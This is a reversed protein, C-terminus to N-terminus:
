QYTEEIWRQAVRRIENSDLGYSEFVIMHAKPDKQSGDVPGYLKFDFRDQVREQTAHFKFKKNKTTMEFETM